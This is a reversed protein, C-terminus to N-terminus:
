AVREVLFEVAQEMKEIAVKNKAQEAMREKKALNKKMPWYGFRSRINEACLKRAHDADKTTYVPKSCQDGTEKSVAICVYTIDRKGTYNITTGNEFKINM